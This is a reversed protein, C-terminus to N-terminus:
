SSKNFNHPKNHKIQVRLCIWLWTNKGKAELQFVFKQSKPNKWMFSLQTSDMFNGQGRESAPGSIQMTAMRDSLIRVPAAIGTWLVSHQWFNLTFSSVVQKTQTHRAAAQSEMVLSFWMEFFKIWNIRIHNIQPKKGEWSFNKDMPICPNRSPLFHDVRINM